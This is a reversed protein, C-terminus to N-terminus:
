LNYCVVATKRQFKSIQLLMYNILWDFFQKYYCSFSAGVDCHHSGVKRNYIYIWFLHPIVIKYWIYPLEM